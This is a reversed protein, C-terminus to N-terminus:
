PQDQPRPPVEKIFTLGHIENWGGGHKTSNSNAGRKGDMVWNGKIMYRRGVQPRPFPSRYNGCVKEASAEKATSATAKHKPKVACVDEIVLHDGAPFKRFIVPHKKKLDSQQPNMLYRYQPDPKLFAHYDGDPATDIAMVEGVVIKCGRFTLRKPRVIHDKRCKAASAEATDVEGLELLHPASENGVRDPASNEAPAFAALAGVVAMTGVAVGTRWPLQRGAETNDVDNPNQPAQKGLHDEM